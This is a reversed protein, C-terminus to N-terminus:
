ESLLQDINKRLKVMNTTGIHIQRIIGQKDRLLITPYTQVRLKRQLYGSDIYIPFQLNLKEQFERVEKLHEPETNISVLAFDRGQYEKYIDNLHPMAAICPSCWTAWFDLLVVKGELMDNTLTTGALSVLDFSELKDNIMVPRVSKWHTVSFHTASVLGSILLSVVFLKM